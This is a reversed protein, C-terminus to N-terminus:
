GIVECEAAGRRRKGETKGLMPIKGLSKARQMLHGCYQRKLVTRGIFINPHTEKLVSQNSRRVTGPVLLRRWYKHHLFIM